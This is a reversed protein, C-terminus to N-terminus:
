SALPSWIIGWFTFKLRSVMIFWRNKYHLSWTGFFVLLMFIFQIGVGTPGTGTNDPFYHKVAPAFILLILLGILMYTFNGQQIRETTKSM